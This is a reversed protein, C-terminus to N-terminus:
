NDTEHGHKTAPVTRMTNWSYGLRPLRIHKIEKIDHIARWNRLILLDVKDFTPKRGKM